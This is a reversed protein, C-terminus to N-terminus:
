RDDFFVTLGFDYSNDVVERPTQAPPGAYLGRVSEIAALNKMDAFFAARREADVDDKLWFYVTHVFGPVYAEAEPPPSPAMEADPPSSETPSNCAFFATLLVVALLLPPRCKKM